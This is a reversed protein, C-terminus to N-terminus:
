YSSRLFPFKSLVLISVGSCTRSARVYEPVGSPAHSPSSYKFDVKISSISLFLRSVQGDCASVLKVFISFYFM